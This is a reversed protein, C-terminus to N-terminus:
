GLKRDVWTLIRSADLLQKQKSEKLVELYTEILEIPDTSTGPEPQPSPAPPPPPPLRPPPPPPPRPPTPTPTPRRPPPTPPRHFTPPWYGWPVLTAGSMTSPAYGSNPPSMMMPPAYGGNPPSGFPNMMPPTAHPPYPPWPQTAPHPYGPYDEVPPGSQSRQPYPERRNRATRPPSSRRRTSSADKKVVPANQRRPRAVRPRSASDAPDIEDQIIDWDDTDGESDLESSSTGGSVQVGSGDSEDSSQHTRSNTSPRRVRRPVPRREPTPRTKPQPKVEKLVGRPKTEIASGTILTTDSSQTTSEAKDTKSVEPSDWIVLDKKPYLKLTDLKKENEDSDYTYDEVTAQLSRTKTSTEDALAAKSAQAGDGLIQAVHPGDMM